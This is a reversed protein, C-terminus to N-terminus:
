KVEIEALKSNKSRNNAKGNTNTLDKTEIPTRSDEVSFNHDVGEAPKKSFGFAFLGIAMSM